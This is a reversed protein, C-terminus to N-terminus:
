RCNHDCMKSRNGGPLDRAKCMHRAPWTAHYGAGTRKTTCDQHTRPGRAVKRAPRKLPNRCTHREHAGSLTTQTVKRDPVLWGGQPPVTALASRSTEKLGETMPIQQTHPHEVWTRLHHSCCTNDMVSASVAEYMFSFACSHGPQPAWILRVCPHLWM